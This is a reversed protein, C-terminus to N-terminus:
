ICKLVIVELSCVSVSLFYRWNLQCYKQRYAEWTKKPKDIKVEDLM